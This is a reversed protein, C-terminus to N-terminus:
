ITPQYEFSTEQEVKNDPLSNILYRLKQYVRNLHAQYSIEPDFEHAKYSNAERMQLREILGVAALYDVSSRHVGKSSAYHGRLTIVPKGFAASENIMSLSDETCFIRESAGMLSEIDVTSDTSQLYWSGAIVEKPLLRKLREEAATPTRRSTTLLWKIKHTAAMSVMSNALDSWDEDSYCYGSGEGGVLMGWCPGTATLKNKLEKGKAAGRRPDIKCLAVQSAVSRENLPDGDKTIHASFFEVPVSYPNGILINNVSYLKALAANLAVVNGGFSIILDPKEEPATWRYGAVVMKSLTKVNVSAAKRFARNLLKHAPRASKVEIECPQNSRHKILQAVGLSQSLHGAKGDYLVLIKM